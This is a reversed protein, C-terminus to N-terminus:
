YGNKVDMKVDEAEWFAANLEMMAKEQDGSLVHSYVILTTELDEHGLLEQVIKPNVKMSLLHTATTHRLGHVSLSGMDLKKLKSTLAHNMSTKRLHDGLARCFVLGHEQWQDVAICRQDYQRLLHDHLADLVFPHLGITRRSAKTKPTGTVYGRNPIWVANERVHLM